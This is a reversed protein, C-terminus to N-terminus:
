RDGASGSEDGGTEAEGGQTAEEVETISAGTYQASQALAAAMRPNPQGVRASARVPRPGDPAVLANDRQRIQLQIATSPDQAHKHRLAKLVNEEPNSCWETSWFHGPPTPEPLPPQMGPITSPRIIYNSDVGVGIRMLKDLKLRGGFFAPFLSALPLTLQRRSDRGLQTASVRFRLFVWFVGDENIASRPVSSSTYLYYPQDGTASPPHYPEAQNPDFSIVSDNHVFAHHSPTSPIDTLIVVDGPSRGTSSQLLYFEVCSGDHESGSPMDLAMHASWPGETFSTGADNDALPFEFRLVLQQYFLVDDHELECQVGWEGGRTTGGVPRVGGRIPKMATFKTAGRASVKVSRIRFGQGEDASRKVFYQEMHTNNMEVLLQVSRSASHPHAPHGGTTCLHDPRVHEKAITLMGGSFCPRHYRKWSFNVPEYTPPDTSWDGIFVASPKKTLDVTMVDRRRDYDFSDRSSGGDHVDCYGKIRLSVPTCVDLVSCYGVDMEHGIAYMESLTHPPRELVEHIFERRPTWEDADDAANSSGSRPCCSPRLLKWPDSMGAATVGRAIRGVRRAFNVVSDESRTVITTRWEPPLELMLQQVKVEGEGEGEWGIEIKNVVYGVVRDRIAKDDKMTPKERLMFALVGPLPLPM